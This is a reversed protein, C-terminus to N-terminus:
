RATPKGCEPCTPLDNVQYGCTNCHGPRPRTRRYLSRTSAGFTGVVVAWFCTNAAFSLPLPKAPFPDGPNSLRVGYWWDLKGSKSRGVWCALCKMPWGARHVPGLSCFGGQSDAITYSGVAAAFGGRREVIVAIRRDSEQWQIEAQLWRGPEQTAQYAEPSLPPALESPHSGVFAVDKPWIPELGRAPDGFGWAEDIQGPMLRLTYSTRSAGLPRSWLVCAWAVLVNTLAGALLLALILAVGRKM